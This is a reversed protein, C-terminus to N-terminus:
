WIPYRYVISFGAASRGRIDGSYYGTILNPFDDLRILEEFPLGGDGLPDAFLAGFGIGLTRGRGVDVWAGGTGGYRFWRQGVLDEANFGLEGYAQLRVGSGSAPRERRGDIALYIAQYVKTYGEAFATPLGYRYSPLEAAVVTSPEDSGWDTHGFRYSNVGGELIIESERWFKHQYRLHASFLDVAYRSREGGGTVVGQERSGIRIDYGEGSYIQDPRRIFDLKLEIESEDPRIAYRDIVTAHIYQVGWFGGWVRIDNGEAFVDNWFLYAGVSPLFGFDFFFTPVLGANRDGWTFFDFLVDAFQAKELATVAAGIPVRVLYEWTVYLPFALVRPIWLLNQGFTPSAEVRGDYAPQARRSTLLEPSPTETDTDTDTDTATDTDTDTDTDTGTGTGTETGTGTGTGTGTETETETGTGTGTGTATETETATDTETEQAHAHLPLTLAFLLALALQTAQRM